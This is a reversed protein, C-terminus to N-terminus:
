AMTVAFMFFVLVFICLGWGAFLVGFQFAAIVFEFFQFLYCLTVMCDAMEQLGHGFQFFLCLIRALIFTITDREQRDMLALPKLVFYDKDHAQRFSNKRM